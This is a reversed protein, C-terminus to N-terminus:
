RKVMEDKDRRKIGLFYVSNSDINISRTQYNRAIQLFDRYESTSFYLLDQKSIEVDQKLMLVAVSGNVIYGKEKKMVRTKYTMNPTLYVDDRNYFKFTENKEVHKM